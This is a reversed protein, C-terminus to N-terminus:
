LEEKKKNKKKKGKGGRKKIDREEMPIGVLNKRWRTFLFKFYPEQIRILSMIFGTFMSTFTSLFM